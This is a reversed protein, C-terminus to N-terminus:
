VDLVAEHTGTAHSAPHRELTGHQDAHTPAPASRRGPLAQPLPRPPHHPRACHRVRPRVHQLDRRREVGEQCAQGQGARGEESGADTHPVTEPPPDADRVAEEVAEEVLRAAHIIRAAAITIGVGPGTATLEILVPEPALLQVATDLDVPITITRM